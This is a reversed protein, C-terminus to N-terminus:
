SEVAGTIQSTQPFSICYVADQLSVQRRQPYM